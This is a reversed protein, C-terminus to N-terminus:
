CIKIKVWFERENQERMWPVEFDVKKEIRGGLGEKKFNLDSNQIEFNLQTQKVPEVRRMKMIFIGM